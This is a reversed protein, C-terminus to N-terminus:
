KVDLLTIDFLLTSNAPIKPSPSQAGYGLDPPIVLKREGGVKMGVVGEDWGKIVAGAGLNFDFPQNRDLSSDFKSGDTLTGTYNVTVHNGAKAEAGDGVKVDTIQLGSATTKNEVKAAGQKVTKDNSPKGELAFVAIIIVAIVLIAGVIIGIRSKTDM